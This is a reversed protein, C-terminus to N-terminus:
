PSESGPSTALLEEPKSGRQTINALAQDYKREADEIRRRHQIQAEYGMDSVDQAKLAALANKLKLLMSKNEMRSKM